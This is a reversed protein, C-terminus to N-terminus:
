RWHNTCDKVLLGDFRDCLDESDLFKEKGLFMFQKKHKKFYSFLELDLYNSYGSSYFSFPFNKHNHYVTVISLTNRNYESRLIYNSSTSESIDDDEFNSIHYSGIFVLMKRSASRTLAKDLSSSIFDERDASLTDNDLSLDDYNNSIEAGDIADNLAFFDDGLLEYYVDINEVLEKRLKYITKELYDGDVNEELIGRLTDLREDDRYSLMADLEILAIDSADLDMDFCNVHIKRGDGIQQNLEYIGELLAMQDWRNQFYVDKIEQHARPDGTTIYKNVRYELTRPYELGIECVGWENYLHRILELKHGTNNMQHNEGLLIFNVSDPVELSNFSCSSVSCQSFGIISSAAFLFTFLFLKIM